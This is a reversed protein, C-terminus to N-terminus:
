SNGRQGALLSARTAHANSLFAEIKAPDKTKDTEVGSSVDVAFPRVSRIAAGVNEPTLGGALFLRTQRALEAALEWDGVVGAGGYLGPVKTDVIVAWPPTPADIWGRFRNTAEITNANDAHVTGIAPRELQAVLEPQEDGSLQIVDL